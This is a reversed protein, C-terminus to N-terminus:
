NKNRKVVLLSGVMAAISSITGLPIEPIVFGPRTPPVKNDFPSNGGIAYILMRPTTSPLTLTFTDPTQTIPQEIETLAWYIPENSPVGIHDRLSAVTYVSYEDPIKGSDAAEWDSLGVPGNWDVEVDGTLGDFCDETIVLFLKAHSVPHETVYIEFEAVGNELLVPENDEWNPDIRITGRKPAAIVNVATLAAIILMILTYRIKTKM